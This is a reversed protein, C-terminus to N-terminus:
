KLYVNPSFHVLSVATATTARFKAAVALTTTVFKAASFVATSNRSCQRNLDRKSRGPGGHSHFCRHDRQRRLARQEAARLPAQKSSCRLAAAPPNDTAPPRGTTTRFSQVRHCGRSPSRAMQRRRRFHARGYGRDISLRGDRAGRRTWSKTKQLAMRRQKNVEAHDMVAARGSGGNVPLM